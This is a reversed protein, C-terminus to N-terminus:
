EVGISMHVLDGGFAITELKLILFPLVIPHEWTSLVAGPRGFPSVLCCALGRVLQIGYDFGHLISGLGSTTEHAIHSDSEMELRDHSSHRLTAM